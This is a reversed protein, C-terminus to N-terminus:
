DYWRVGGRGGERGGRLHHDFHLLGGVEGGEVGEEGDVRCSPVRGRAEGEKFGHLCCLESTGIGEGVGM